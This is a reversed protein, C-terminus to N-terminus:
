FTRHIYVDFSINENTSLVEEKKKNLLEETKFAGVFKSARTRNLKDLKNKYLLYVKKM